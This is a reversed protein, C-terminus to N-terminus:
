SKIIEKRLRSLSQPAVGIYSAILYHQFKNLLYHEEKLIQLYRQKANLTLLTFARKHVYQYATESMKSAVKELIHSNSTLKQISDYSLMVVEIDELAQFSLFTPTQTLFSNYDVLFYNEFKSENDNFHFNWTLDQGEQNIFFSRAKGSVIFLINKCISGEQLIKDGVKYTKFELENELLQSDRDPLQVFQSILNIFPNMKYGDNVIQGHIAVKQLL